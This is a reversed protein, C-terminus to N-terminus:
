HLVVTRVPHRTHHSQNTKNHVRHLYDALQTTQSKPLTLDIWNVGAACLAELIELPLDAFTSDLELGALLEAQAYLIDTLSRSYTDKNQLQSLVKLM